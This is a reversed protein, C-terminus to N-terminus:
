ELNELEQNLEKITSKAFHLMKAISLVRNCIVGLFMTDEKDYMKFLGLVYNDMICINEHLKQKGFSNAISDALGLISGSIPTLMDIEHDESSSKLIVHGDLTSIFIVESGEVKNLYSNLIDKLSEILDREQM